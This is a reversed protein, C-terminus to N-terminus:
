SIKVFTTAVSYSLKLVNYKGKQSEKDTGTKNEKEENDKLHEQKGKRQKEVRQSELQAMRSLILEELTKGIELQTKDLPEHKDQEVKPSKDAESNTKHKSKTGQSGAESNEKDSKPKSLKKVKSPGKEDLPALEKMEQGLIALTNQKNRAAKNKRGIKKAYMGGPKQRSKEMGMGWSNLSKLNKNYRHKRAKQLTYLKAETANHGTKTLKIRSKRHKHRRHNKPTQHSDSLSKEKKRTEYDVFASGSEHKSIMNYITKVKQEEEKGKPGRAVMDLDKKPAAYRWVQHLNHEVEKLLKRNVRVGSGSVSEGSLELSDALGSSEGSIGDEVSEVLAEEESERFAGSGIEHIEGSDDGSEGSADAYGSNLGSPEGQVSEEPRTKHLNTVDHIEGSNDGSEGSADAYGSNLGSPEGQVSEEPRTKHLNTVDSEHKIVLNYIEQVKREQEKGKPGKSIMDLNKSSSAYRWVKRLNHQIERLITNNIKGSGDSNQDDVEHSFLISGSGSGSSSYDASADEGDEETLQKDIRDYLLNEDNGSHSDSEFEEIDSPNVVSAMETRKVANVGHTQTQIIDDTVDDDQEAGSEGILGGEWDEGSSPDEMKFNMSESSREYYNGSFLFAEHKNHASKTNSNSNIAGSHEEDEIDELSRIIRKVQTSSKKVGPDRNDSFLSLKSINFSGADNQSSHLIDSVERRNPEVSFLLM